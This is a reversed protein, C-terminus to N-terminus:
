KRKPKELGALQMSKLFSKLAEQVQLDGRVFVEYYKGSDWLNRAIESKLLLNVYEIDRAFEDEKIELGSQQVFKKFQNILTVTVLFNSVFGQFDSKLEPHEQAYRSGFEFFLRKSLLLSTFPSVLGSKVLVDPQIGGSGYVKRGKSTLFVQSRSLSDDRLRQTESEDQNGLYYEAIGNEYPRQILRGSPTYYRAITIRIASQDNLEIQSQVLGKGFSTEGVILGRDWDQIAGAVIESASATGSNILVILPLRAYPTDETSEFTEDAGIIRGRTSVIVKRSVLFKDVVAVAQDLYGGSNSRLDLLLQQMGQRSLETLAQQLEDATTKAFRSLAVYGTKEDLMFSAVVSYIPIKDRAIILDFPEEVNPRRITVTVKSGRPGRLQQKVGDESIGFTYKGDIKTIIDGPRIGLKESPTGAIPAVVTLVKKQIIFEIGIGFFYGDFEETVKEMRSPEIYVSHPDLEELMGNIAGTILKDSDVEEVYYQKVIKCVEIFRNIQKYVDTDALALDYSNPQLSLFLGILIFFGILSYKIKQKM